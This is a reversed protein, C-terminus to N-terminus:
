QDKIKKYNQLWSYYLLLMYDVLCIKLIWMYNFSILLTQLTWLDFYFLIFYKTIWSLEFYPHRSFLGIPGICSFFFQLPINNQARTGIPAYPTAEM